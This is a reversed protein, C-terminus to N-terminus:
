PGGPLKDFNDVVAQAIQKFYQELSEKGAVAFKLEYFRNGEKEYITLACIYKQDPMIRRDSSGSEPAILGYCAYGAGLDECMDKIASRKLKRIQRIGGGYFLSEIEMVPVISFGRDHLERLITERLLRDQIDNLQRSDFGLVLIREKPKAFALGQAIVLFLAFSILIIKKTHTM